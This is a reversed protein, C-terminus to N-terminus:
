CERQPSGMKHPHQGRAEQPDPPPVQSARELRSRKPSPSHSTRHCANQNHPPYQVPCHFDFSKLTNLLSSLFSNIISSPYPISKSKGDKKDEVSTERRTYEFVPGVLIDAFADGDECRLLRHQQSVRYSLELHSVAYDQWTRAATPPGLDTLPTMNSGKNRKSFTWDGCDAESECAQFGSRANKM